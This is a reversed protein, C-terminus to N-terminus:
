EVAASTEEEKEDDMLIALACAGIILTAGVYDSMGFTEGLTLAGAAAAFLPETTLIISADTAPVRKFAISEVWLALATTVLGTYLIGGLALPSSFIPTFDPVRLTLGQLNTMIDEGGGALLPFLEFLVFSFFAVMLLKIASIVLGAQPSKKMLQELQLYGFGFGIPQSFSLADGITPAGGAGQLEVIAVGLVAVAAPLLRMVNFSTNTDDDFSDVDQQLRKVASVRMAETVAAVFVCHLTCIVCSRSATTTLLGLTQGLYGFAVWSGCIAAGKATEWTILGQRIAGISGPLLALFATSFRAVAYLTSDVAPEAMVLKAAAFNSAWLACLLVIVGRWLWISSDDDDNPTITTTADTSGNITMLATSDSESETTANPSASSTAEAPSCTTSAASLSHDHRTAALHTWSSSSSSSSSETYFPRAIREQDTREQFPLTSEWLTRKTTTTTTPSFARALTPIILLLLALRATTAAPNKTMITAIRELM